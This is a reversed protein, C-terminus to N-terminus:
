TFSEFRRKEVLSNNKPCDKLPTNKHTLTGAAQLYKNLLIYFIFASAKVHISLIDPDYCSVYTIEQGRPTVRSERPDSRKFVLSGAASQM